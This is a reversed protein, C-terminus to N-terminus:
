PAASGAIELTATMEVDEDAPVIRLSNVRAGQPLEPVRFGDDQRRCPYLTGDDLGEDDAVSVWIEAARADPSTITMGALAVPREFSVLVHPKSVPQVGMERFPPLKLRLTDGELRAQIKWPYWDNIRPGTKRPVGKEGLAQPAHRELWDVVKQAYYHTARPGPHGNAPNATWRFPHAAADEGMDRVYDDLLNVLPIGSEAIVRMPKEYLPAYYSRDPVVPLSVMVAPLRLADLQRALEAVTEQWRTFNEGELLLKLWEEPGYELGSRALRERKKRMYRAQFQEVLEPLWWRFVDDVFFMRYVKYNQPWVGMDPDNVVYGLVIAEAKLGAFRPDRLWALEEKTQAGNWGLALVEVDTYGRRELEREIQRWWVDNINALGDGWSFSDAIVVIRHSKGGQMPRIGGPTSMLPFTEDLGALKTLNNQKIRTDEQGWSRSMLTAGSQHRLWLEACFATGLLVALVGVFFRLAAPPFIRRGRHAM